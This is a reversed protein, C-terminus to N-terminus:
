SVVREKIWGLIIDLFGDIFEKELQAYESPLGTEAKQFLHNAQSIVILTFDENGAYELAEKMAEKNMESPVQLDLEGFVALVPQNSRKWNESPDHRILYQYWPSKLTFMTGSISHEIYQSLDVIADRQEETMQEVQAPVVERVIREIEDWGQGTEAAEYVLDFIRLQQEIVSEDIEMARFILKSQTVILEKGPVTPGALSIIFDVDEDWAAVIAAVIAEESHGLLGIREPDIDKRAQLFRFKEVVDGALDEATAHFVNGTSEGVGRDDCRLVSIGNPTLYDALIRFPKFGFITEDRDQAGRGTILIVAPHPAGTFPLTLTCGLRINDNRIFVEEENYLLPVEEIEEDKVEARNLYFTGTMGAQSFKGSIKDGDRAGDFVALGPGAPLEFYVTDNEYRLNSLPLNHAMQQPIDITARLTDDEMTFYVLIILETLMIEIAGEWSGQITPDTLKQNVSAIAPYIILIILLLAICQRM